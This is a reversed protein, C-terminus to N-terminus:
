SSTPTSNKTLKPIFRHLGFTNYIVPQTAKVPFTKLLNKEM